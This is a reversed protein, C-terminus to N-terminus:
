SWVDEFLQNLQEDLQSKLYDIRAEKEDDPIPMMLIEEKCRSFRTRLAAAKEELTPPSPPQPAPTPDPLPQPSHAVPAEAPTSRERTSRRTFYSQLRACALTLNRSSVSWLTGTICAVSYVIWARLAAIVTITIWDPGNV